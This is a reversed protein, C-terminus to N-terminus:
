QTTTGHPHGQRSCRLLVKTVDERHVPTERENGYIRPLKLDEPIPMEEEEEEPAPPSPSLSSSSPLPPIIMPDGIIGGTKNEGTYYARDAKKSL